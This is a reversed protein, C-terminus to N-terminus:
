GGFYLGQGRLVVQVTTLITKLDALIIEFASSQVCFHLYDEDLFLDGTRESGKAAQVGGTLGAKLIIKAQFGMQRVQKYEKVPHPRPGVFVMDGKLINILQPLEDLYWKRLVHGTLSLNGNQLRTKFKLIIFGKGQTLRLQTAFPSSIGGDRFFHEIIISTILLIKLPLLVIVALLAVVRCALHYLKLRKNLRKRWVKKDLKKKKM